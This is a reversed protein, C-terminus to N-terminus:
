RKDLSLSRADFVMSSGAGGGGLFVLKSNSSAALAKMAELERLRLMQPTMSAQVLRDYEATAKGDLLKADAAAKAVILTAQAAADAQLKSREAEARTEMTKRQEESEQQALVWKMKLAQQEKQLKDNIAAQITAPLAVNRILVAELLVHRGKIATEVGERIQREIVERQTSYIEDPKFRGVVRRAQSRLSPGILVGYYDRGMEQDIQVAEGPVIHYRISTDLTIALGDSALVDLKEEREQSRVSYTTATDFYGIHYDGPQLAKPEVGNPTHIVAVEGSGVSQFSYCGSSAAAVLALACCRLTASIQVM